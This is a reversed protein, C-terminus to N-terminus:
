PPTEWAPPSPGLISLHAERLNPRRRQWEARAPPAETWTSHLYEAQGALYDHIMADGPTETQSGAAVAFAGLLALCLVLPLLSTM